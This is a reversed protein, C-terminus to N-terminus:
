KEMKPRQTLTKPMRDYLSPCKWLEKTQVSNCSSIRDYECQTWRFTIHFNAISIANSSMADGTWNTNTIWQRQDDIHAAFIIAEINNHVIAISVITGIFANLQDVFIPINDNIDGFEEDWKSINEFEILNFFILLHGTSSLNIERKRPDHDSVPM